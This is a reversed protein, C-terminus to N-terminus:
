QEPRFVEVCHTRGDGTRAEYPSIEVWDEQHEMIAVWRMLEGPMRSCLLIAGGPHRRGDPGLPLDGPLLDDCDVLTRKMGSPSLLKGAAQIMADRVLAEQQTM